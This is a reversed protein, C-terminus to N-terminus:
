MTVKRVYICPLMGLIFGKDMVLFQSQVHLHYSGLLMQIFVLEM